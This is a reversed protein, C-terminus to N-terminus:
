HFMRKAVRMRSHIQPMVDHGLQFFYAQVTETSLEEPSTDFVLYNQLRPAIPLKQSGYFANPYLNRRIIVRSISQLTMTEAHQHLDTSQDVIAGPSIIQHLDTHKVGSLLMIDWVERCNACQSRCQFLQLAPRGGDLGEEKVLDNPDPTAIVLLKIINYAHCLNPGGCIVRINKVPRESWLVHKDLYPLSILMQEVRWAPLYKKDKPSLDTSDAANAIKSGMELDDGTRRHHCLKSVNDLCMLTVFFAFYIFSLCAFALIVFISPHGYLITLWVCLAVALTSSVFGVLFFTRSRAKMKVVLRRLVRANLLEYTIRM